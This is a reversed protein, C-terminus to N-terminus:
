NQTPPTQLLQVAPPEQVVCGLGHTVPTMLQAVPAGTHVSEDVAAIFPVEHPVLATQSLPRHTPHVAPVDHPVGGLGHTSPAMPHVVPVGTHLSVVVGTVLPVEHPVLMTQSLPTQVEHVGPALQMGVLGHWVPVVSQLVPRGTQLAVPLTAFPVGHPALSTQSLPVHPVHTAPPEHGGAFGHWVPTTEQAPPVGEHVSVPIARGFPVEHPLPSTQSLPTQVAHTAPVLQVGGLGHWVPVVSQEDPVGIHLGEPLTEFPM